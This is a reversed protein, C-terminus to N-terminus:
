ALSRELAGRRGRYWGWRCGAGRWRGVRWWIGATGCHSATAPCTLVASLPAAGCACAPSCVSDRICM